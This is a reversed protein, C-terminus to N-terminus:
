FVESFFNLNSFKLIGNQWPPAPSLAKKEHQRTLVSKLGFLRNTYHYHRLLQGIAMNEADPKDHKEDKRDFANKVSGCSFLQSDVVAAWSGFRSLNSFIKQSNRNTSGSRINIVKKSFKELWFKSQAWLSFWVRKYKILYHFRWRQVLSNLKEWAKLDLHQAGQCAWIKRKVFKIQNSM